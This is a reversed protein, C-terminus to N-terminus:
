GVSTLGGAEAVLMTGSGHTVPTHMFAMNAQEGPALDHGELMDATKAAPTSEGTLASEDIQLSSAAIIRGDAPVDAGASLVVVDGVVVQEAAIVAEDG